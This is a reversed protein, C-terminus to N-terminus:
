IGEKGYLKCKMHVIREIRWNIKEIGERYKGRVNIKEIRQGYETNEYLKQVHCKVIVFDRGNLTLMRGHSNFGWSMPLKYLGSLPLPIERNRTIICKWLIKSAM